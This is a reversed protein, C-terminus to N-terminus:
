SACRACTPARRAALLELLFAERDRQDLRVCAPAHRRLGHARRQAGVRQEHRQHQGVVLDAHDDSMAAIARARGRARRARACRRTAPPPCVARRRRSARRRNGRASRACTRRGSPCRRATRARSRAAAFRASGTRRRARARGANRCAAWAGSRRSRSAAACRAPAPRRAVGRMRAIERRPQPPLELRNRAGDEVAM